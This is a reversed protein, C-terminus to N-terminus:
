KHNPWQTHVDLGNLGGKVGEKIEKRREGEKKNQEKWKKDKEKGRKSMKEIEEYKKTFQM